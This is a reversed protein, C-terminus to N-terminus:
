SFYTSKNNIPCDFYKVKNFISLGHTQALLYTPTEVLKKTIYTPVYLMNPLYDQYQVQDIVQKDCFNEHFFSKPLTDLINSM